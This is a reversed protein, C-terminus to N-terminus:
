SKRQLSIFAANLLLGVTKSLALLCAHTISLRKHLPQPWWVLFWNTGLSHLSAPPLNMLTLFIPLIILCVVLLHHPSRHFNLSTSACVGPNRGPHRQPRGGPPGDQGGEEPCRAECEESGGANVTHWLGRYAHSQQFLPRTQPPLCPLNLAHMCLAYLALWPHWVTCHFSSVTCARKCVEVGCVFYCMNCPECIRCKHKSTSGTLL